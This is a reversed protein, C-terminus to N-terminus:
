QWRMETIQDFNLTLSLYVNGTRAKTIPRRDADNQPQRQEFYIDAAGGLSSTDSIATPYPSALKWLTGHNTAGSQVYVYWAGAQDADRFDPERTWPGGTNVRYIGNAYRTTTETGNIGNKVLVRQGSTPTVGDITISGTLAGAIVAATALDVDVFRREVDDAVEEEVIEAYYGYRSVDIVNNQDCVYTFTQPQGAAYWASSSKPRAPSQYGDADSGAAASGLPVPVGSADIRLVKFRPPAFPAADRREPVRFTFDLSSLRAGDQVDLEIRCRAGLGIGLSRITAAQEVGWYERPTSQRTLMPQVITRSRLAHGDAFKPWTGDPVTIADTQLEGGHAIETPGDVFFNNSFVIAASPAWAGGRVANVAQFIKTSLSTWDAATPVYGAGLWVGDAQTRSFSM